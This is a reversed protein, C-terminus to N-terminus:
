SRIHGWLNCPVCVRVPISEARVLNTGSKTVSALFIYDYRGLVLLSSSSSPVESPSSSAELRMRKAVGFRYLCICVFQCHVIELTCHVSKVNQCPWVIMQASCNIWCHASDAFPSSLKSKKKRETETSWGPRPSIIRSRRCWRRSSTRGRRLSLRRITLPVCYVYSRAM